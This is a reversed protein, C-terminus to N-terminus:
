AEGEALVLGRPDAPAPELEADGVDVRRLLVDGQRYMM